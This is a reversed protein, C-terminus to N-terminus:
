NRCLLESSERLIREIKNRLEAHQALAEQLKECNDNNKRKLKAITKEIEAVNEKAKKCHKTLDERHCCSPDSRAVTFSRQQIALPQISFPARCSSCIVTRFRSYSAHPHVLTCVCNGEAFSDPQEILTFQSPQQPISNAEPRALNQDRENKDPAKSPDAM